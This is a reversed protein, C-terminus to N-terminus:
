SCHRFLPASFGTGPSLVSRTFSEASAIEELYAVLIDRARSVENCFYIFRKCCIADTRKETNMRQLKMDHLHDDQTQCMTHDAPPEEDELEPHWGIQM